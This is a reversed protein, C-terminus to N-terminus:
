WIHPRKELFVRFWFVEENLGDETAIARYFKNLDIGHEDCVQARNELYWDHLPPLYQEYNNRTKAKHQDRLTVKVRKKADEIEEETM